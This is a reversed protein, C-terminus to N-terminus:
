KSSAAALALRDRLKEDAMQPLDITVSYRELLGRYFADNAQQRRADAWQRAVAARVHQLAPMRGQQREQVFVFHLGYGSEIPGEWRGLQLTSLKTSFPEGFQRAVDSVEVGEFRAELLTTDALTFSEATNGARILQARVATIARALGDRHRAPNLYVQSFTIRAEGRFKELHSQLYAQLDADTPEAQRAVDETVFELKQQLRRSIVVDDRDLGLAKAERAYVEARVHDRILGTLELETPPRQWTRAFGTALSAIQDQTVVVTQPASERSGGFVSYAAFLLGGLLLFHILPERLARRLM